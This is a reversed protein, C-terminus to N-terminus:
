PCTEGACKVACAALLVRGDNEAFYDKTAEVLTSLKNLITNLNDPYNAIRISRMDPHDADPLLADWYQWHSVHDLLSFSAEGGQLMEVDSFLGTRRLLQELNAEGFLSLHFPPIVNPSSAKSVHVNLATFHPVVIILLGGPKLLTAYSTIFGVPDAVHELVAISSIVDFPLGEAALAAVDDTLVDLDFLERAIEVSRPNRENLSVKWGPARQSVLNAFVGLGGGVDLWTGGTRRDTGRAILIELLEVPASYASALGTRARPLEYFERVRTYYDGAYLTNLLDPPPYPNVCIYDCEVCRCHKIEFKSFAERLHRSGCCPCELRQVWGQPYRGELHCLRRVESALTNTIEPGSSTADDRESLDKESVPQRACRKRFNQLLKLFSRKFVTM